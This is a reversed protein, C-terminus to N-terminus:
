LERLQSRASSVETLTEVTPTHKHATELNRLKQIAAVIAASREKKLHAGIHIFSGLLVAKLSKWQILLSTTDM